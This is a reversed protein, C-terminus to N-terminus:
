KLEVGLSINFESKYRRVVIAVEILVEGVVDVMESLLSEIVVPWRVNHISGEGEISVFLVQYVEEMIYFLILAFLKIVMLLVHYFTYCVGECLENIEDYLCEKSMELYNDVLDRWFFSEM